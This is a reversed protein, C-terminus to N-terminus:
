ATVAGARRTQNSWRFGVALVDGQAGPQTLWAIRVILTQM